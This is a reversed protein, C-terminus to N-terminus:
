WGWWSTHGDGDPGSLWAGFLVILWGVLAIGQGIPRRFIAVVGVAGLAVLVGLLFDV